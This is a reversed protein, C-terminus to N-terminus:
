EGGGISYATLSSVGPLDVVDIEVGGDKQGLKKEDIIHSKTELYDELAPSITKSARM